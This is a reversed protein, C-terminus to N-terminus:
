KDGRKGSKSVNAFKDELDKFDKELDDKDAKASNIRFFSSIDRVPLYNEWQLGPLHSLLKLLTIEPCMNRILNM